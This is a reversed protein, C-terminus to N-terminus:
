FPPYLFKNIQSINWLVEVDRADFVIMLNEVAIAFGDRKFPPTGMFWPMIRFMEPSWREPVSLHKNELPSAVVSPQMPGWPPAKKSLLRKLHMNAHSPAEPTKWTQSYAPHAVSCMTKWYSVKMSRFMIRFKSGTVSWLM